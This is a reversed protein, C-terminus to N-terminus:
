QSHREAKARFAGPTMGTWRVFARHFAPQQTFGLEYAVEVVSTDERALLQEALERRVDSVLDRHSLGHAELQRQLTRTSVHLARAVSAVDAKKNRLGTAIAARVRDGFSDSPALKANLRSAYEELSAATAPDATTLPVDLAGADFTLEDIAAGFRVTTGFFDQFPRPDAVEHTFTVSELRFIPGATQRARAVFAAFAFETLQTVHRAGPRVRYFAHAVGDREELALSVLQTVLGFFRAM